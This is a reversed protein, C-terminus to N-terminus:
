ADLLPVERCERAASQALGALRKATAAELNAFGRGAHALELLLKVEAAFDKADVFEPGMKKRTGALAQNHYNGLPLALGSSRYGASCFATAECTGGDMLRRQFRFDPDGKKIRLCAQRLAETLKADFLSAADGVRVIVGAGQPAHPLAKSCELSLVRAERPVQRARIAMLAGYFGVEEARTFLGWVACDKPKARHLEDLVCLAAAAGLLDDCCRSYIKGGRLAFAPFDWMAFGGPKAVGAAVKATGREIRDNAGEASVLAGRGTPKAVGREYFRLKSGAVPYELGVGGRFRLHARGNEVREIWFGPHDLHAVLVLPSRHKLATAPYGVYLNGYADRRVRLSPREAAFNLIHRVPLEEMLTATPCSLLGSAIGLWRDLDNSNTM